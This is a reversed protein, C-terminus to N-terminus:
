RTRGADHVAERGLSPQKCEQESEIPPKRESRCRIGGMKVSSCRPRRDLLQVRVALISVGRVLVRYVDKRINMQQSPICNRQNGQPITFPASAARPVSAVTWASTVSRGAATNWILVIGTLDYVVSIGVM